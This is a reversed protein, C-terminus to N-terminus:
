TVQQILMIGGLLLFGALSVPRLPDCLADPVGDAICIAHERAETWQNQFDVVLLFRWISSM